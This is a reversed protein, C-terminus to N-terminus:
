SSRWRAGAAWGLRRWERGPFLVATPMRSSRRLPATKLSHTYRLFSFRKTRAGIPTSCPSPSPTRAHYLPPPARHREHRGRLPSSHPPPPTVMVHYPHSAKHPHREAGVSFCRVCLDFDTCTACKIRIVTSIDRQCYNCHYLGRRTGDAPVVISPTLMPGQEYASIPSLTADHLTAASWDLTSLLGESALEKQTAPHNDAGSASMSATRNVSCSCFSANIFITLCQQHLDLNRHPFRASLPAQKVEKMMLIVRKCPNNLPCTYRALVHFRFM